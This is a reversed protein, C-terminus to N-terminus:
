RRVFRLTNNVSHKGNKDSPDKFTFSHQNEKTKLTFTLTDSDFGQFILPKEIKVRVETSKYM